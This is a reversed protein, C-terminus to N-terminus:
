GKVVGLPTLRVVRKAIGAREMVNVVDAVHKYASPM